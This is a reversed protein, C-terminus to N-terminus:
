RDEKLIKKALAVAKGNGKDAAKCCTKFCELATEGAPTKGSNRVGDSVGLWPGNRGKCDPPCTSLIAEAFAPRHPQKVHSMIASYAILQPTGDKDPYRLGTKESLCPPIDQIGSLSSPPQSSEPPDETDVQLTKSTTHEKEKDIDLEIDAKPKTKSAETKTETQNLKPKAKSKDKPPRGGKRGAETRIRSLEEIEKSTQQYDEYDHILYSDGDKEFLGVAVLRELVADATKRPTGPFLRRVEQISIHGDKEYDRCRSTAAVHYAYCLADFGAEIATGDDADAIKDHGLLQTEVRIWTKSM